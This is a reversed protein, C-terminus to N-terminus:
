AWRARTASRIAAFGRKAGGGLGGTVPKAAALGAVGLAACRSLQCVWRFWKGAGWCEGLVGSLVDAVGTLEQKVNDLRPKQKQRASACGINQSVWSLVWAAVIAACKIAASGGFIRGRGGGM